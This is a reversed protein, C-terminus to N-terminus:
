GRWVPVTQTSPFFVVVRFISFFVYHSALASLSQIKSPSRDTDSSTSRPRRRKQSGRGHHNCSGLEIAPEAFARDSNV